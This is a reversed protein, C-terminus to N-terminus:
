HLPYNVNEPKWCHNCDGCKNANLQAPCQAIKMADNVGVSSFTLGFPQNAHLEYKMPTSLRVVLNSPFGEPNAKLWKGVIGFERTPVWHDLFPTAKAVDVIAQLHELSQLDGSDHWRFRNEKIEM